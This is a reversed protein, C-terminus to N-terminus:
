GRMKLALTKANRALAALGIGSILHAWTALSAPLWFYYLDFRYMLPWHLLYLEYSYSGFLRFLGITFPKLMFIGIVGLALLLSLGQERWVEQGVAANLAVHGVILSLFVVLVVRGVNGTTTKFNLRLPNQTISALLVGLPFAWIHLQYLQLVDRDVPLTSQTLFYGILGLGLATIFPYKKINMLPFLLYYALIFTFYWLPANLSTALDARPFFGLASEIITEWPYRIGLLADGIYLFVLVTWLPIFLKPLHDRYFSQPTFPKKKASRTLGFGSLFLFLNVAVGAFISLPFLFRNDQSLFYGVHSFIVALIAFGKLELSVDKTLAVDKNKKARISISIAIVFLLVFWWTQTLPDTILVRTPEM